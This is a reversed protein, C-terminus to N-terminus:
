IIERGIKYGISFLGADATKLSDLANLHLSPFLLNNTTAKTSATLYEQYSFSSGLENRWYFKINSDKQNQNLRTNIVSSLYNYSISNTYGALISGGQM